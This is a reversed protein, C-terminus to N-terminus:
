TYDLVISCVSVRPEVDVCVCAEHPESVGTPHSGCQTESHAQTGGLSLLATTHKGHGLRPSFSLPRNRNRAQAVIRSQGAWHMDSMPQHGANEPPLPCHESTLTVNGLSGEPQACSWGTLGDPFVQGARAPPTIFPPPKRPHLACRTDKACM